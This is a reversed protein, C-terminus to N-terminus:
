VECDPPRVPVFRSTLGRWPRPSLRSDPTTGSSGVGDSSDWVEYCNPNVLRTVIRTWQCYSIWPRFGPKEQADAVAFQLILLNGFEYFFSKPLNLIAL